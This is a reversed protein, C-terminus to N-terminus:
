GCLSHRCLSLQSYRVIRCAAGGRVARFVSHAVDFQRPGLRRAAERRHELTQGDVPHLHGALFRARFLKGQAPVLHVGNLPSGHRTTQGSMLGLRHLADTDVLLRERAALAAERQDVIQVQRANEM